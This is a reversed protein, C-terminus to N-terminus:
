VITFVAGGDPAIASGGPTGANGETGNLRNSRTGGPAINYTSASQLGTNSLLGSSSNIFGSGGGGM